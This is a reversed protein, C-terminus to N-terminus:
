MISKIPFQWPQFAAKYSPHPNQFKTTTGHNDKVHHPKSKAGEPAAGLSPQKVSVSYTMTAHNTLFSSVPVSSPKKLRARSPLTFPRLM